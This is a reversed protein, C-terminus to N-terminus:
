TPRNIQMHRASAITWDQNQNMRELIVPYHAVAKVSVDWDQQDILNNDVKGDLLRGAENIQDVFTSAPIVQALLPDPYLAIPALIEDLEAESYKAEAIQQPAPANANAAPAEKKGGCACLTALSVILSVATLRKVITNM